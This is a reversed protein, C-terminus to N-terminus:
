RMSIWRTTRGMIRMDYHRGYHSIFAHWSNECTFFAEIYHGDSNLIEGVADGEFFEIRDEITSFVNDSGDYRIIILMGNFDM